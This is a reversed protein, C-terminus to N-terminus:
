AKSRHILRGPWPTEIEIANDPCVEQCCYCRICLSYDYRPVKDRDGGPFDVAKPSVPCMAVCTGCRTCREDRITPRPIVYRRMIPVLLPNLTDGRLEKDRKVDFDPVMCDEIPDGVLRINEYTGLGSEKGSVITAVLQPDLDIMRCFVADLAVPDTSFLLVGTDRPIGNGPGNGEMATIGDMVYLRPKLYATLDVLMQAFTELKSLRGHFEGKLMGPICGFQNKIAGTIRTLAHTKMKCLSIVGESDLVGKAVVFQKCLRGEPFSITTGNQFDAFDIGLSEAVAQLGARRAAATPKGFGPSDGYHVRAGCALFQKAVSEFVAPHTTVAKDPSKGSLLNPKLLIKEGSKVFTQIGGLLSIGRAVSEDVRHSEYDKCHVIAVVPRPNEPLVANSNDM